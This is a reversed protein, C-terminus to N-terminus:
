TCNRLWTPSLNNRKM